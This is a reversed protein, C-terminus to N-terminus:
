ARNDKTLLSTLLQINEVYHVNGDQDEPTELIKPVTTFRQDNILFTFAELGIKGKGIDAHRDVRSGCEKKSDNLHIAKLNEIGLLSDFTNWFQTYSQDTSWNYGAAFAHCTDICFGIRKKHEITKQLYHLHELTYGVANGQGATNELLVLTSSQAKKLVEDLSTAITQLCEEVTSLDKSGPHLVLSQIGLQECRELEILLGEISKQRIDKKPSGLNLLYSAHAIPIIGTQNQVNKFLEAQHQEILKAGWQRNSKTFIQVCSFQLNAASFLAKEFGGAVSLHAGITFPYKQSM